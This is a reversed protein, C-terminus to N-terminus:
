YNPRNAKFIKYIKRQMKIYHSGEWYIQGCSTCQYFKKYYQSTKASVKQITHEKDIPQILGNCKICRSFPVIQSWLDFRQIVEIVQELPEISHVWHGHTISNIKLLNRDRTLLIRLDRNAKSAIELDSDGKNTIADFGLMRLLRILKGLNVDIIFKPNRLPKSRLRIIPSIDLSEFIPYVAVRDNNCLHYDFGVSVDNVIILDIETHPVGIAEIADKIAPAGSFYYQFSQKKKNEPLFDNLEEYFRFEASKNHM